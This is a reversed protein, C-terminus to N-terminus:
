LTVIGRKDYVSGAGESLKAREMAIIWAVTLDIRKTRDLGRGRHEKVFKIQANGNKHVSTNGFCWRAVPHDEHTMKKSRLFLEVQNASDTLAYGQPIDIFEKGDQDMRQMLMTAFHRDAAREKVDYLNHYGKIVEEIRTHDIENGPTPMIWAGAAWENYPVKDTKIRDQMTAEPIFCDWIVRWDEHGAQPPFILCVASLDTTTSLDVGLYCEEGELDARTWDGVTQDFLELPLWSALKTTVWQNLNLWRFTLEDAKSLKAEQAIERLDEIQLTVGLSPNAKAWNKENYIDDGQYSYIVPYWTPIDNKHDGAERAKLISEAKEHVEWGITVRDPDQGATTIVWWMPQKRALGSGKTMVDWLNRNPQVHLEDFLVVSPKYGHQSFSESSLVEYFSGTEINVIRKMASQIRVRKALAKEQLIMEVAADFVIGAQKRTGACGYIAAHPEDPDFLHLNAIGSVLASKANKKATEIYVQRYRRLGRANMTGYVDSVIKKQWPILVFPEGHFDDTLHLLEIFQIARKAKERSFM